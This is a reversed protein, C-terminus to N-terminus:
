LENKNGETDTYMQIFKKDPLSHIITDLRSSDTAYRKAIKLYFGARDFDGRLYHSQAMSIHSQVMAWPMGSALYVDDYDKASLIRPDVSKEKPYDMDIFMRVFYVLVPYKSLPEKNFLMLLDKLSNRKNPPNSIYQDLFPQIHSKLDDMELLSPVFFQPAANKKILVYRSAAPKTKRYRHTMVLTSHLGNNIGGAHLAEGLFYLNDSFLLKEPARGLFWMWKESILYFLPRGAIRAMWSDKSDRPLLVFFLEWLKGLFHTFPLVRIVQNVVLDSLPFWSVLVGESPTSDRHFVLREKQDHPAHLVVHPLLLYLEDTNHYDFVFDLTNPSLGSEFCPRSYTFATKFLGKLFLQSPISLNKDSLSEIAQQPSDATPLSYNLAKTLKAYSDHDIKNKAVAFGFLKLKFKDSIMQGDKATLEVKILLLM